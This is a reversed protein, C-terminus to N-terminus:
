PKLSILWTWTKLLLLFGLLLRRWWNTGISAVSSHTSKLKRLAKKQV